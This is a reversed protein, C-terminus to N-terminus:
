LLLSMEFIGKRNRNGMLDEKVSLVIIFKSHEEQEHKQKVVYRNIVIYLM